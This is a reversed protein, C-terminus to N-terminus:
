NIFSWIAKENDPTSPFKFAIIGGFDVRQNGYGLFIQFQLAQSKTEENLVRGCFFIKQWTTEAPMEGRPTMDGETAWNDTATKLALYYSAPEDAMFKETEAIREGKVWVVGVVLEDQEVPLDKMLAVSYSADWFNNTDKATTVSYAASFPVKDGSVDLEAKKTGNSSLKKMLEAEDEGTLCKVGDKLGYYELEAYIQEWYSLNPDPEYPPRPPETPPPETTTPPETPPPPDTQPAETVPTEAGDDVAKATEASKKEGCAFTVPLILAICLFLAILKFLKKSKM